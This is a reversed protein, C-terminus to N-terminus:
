VTDMDMRSAHRKAKNMEVAGPLVITKFAARRNSPLDLAAMEGAMTTTVALRM